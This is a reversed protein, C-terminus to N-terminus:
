IRGRGLSQRVSYWEAHLGLASLKQQAGQIDGFGLTLQPEIAFYYDSKQDTHSLFINDDWVGRVTFM